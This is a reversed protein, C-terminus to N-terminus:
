FPAVLDLPWNTAFIQWIRLVLDCGVKFKDFDTSDEFKTIEFKLIVMFEDVSDTLATVLDSDLFLGWMGSGDSLATGPVEVLAVFSSAVVGDTGFVADSILSRRLSVFVCSSILSDSATPFRMLSCVSATIVMFSGCKRRTLSARM